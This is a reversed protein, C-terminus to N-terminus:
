IVGLGGLENQIERYSNIVNERFQVRSVGDYDSHLKVGDELILLLNQIGIASLFWGFEFLVNPRAQYYPIEHNTVEDDRTFLAICFECSEATQEFKEILYKNLGPKNQMLIPNLNFDNSLLQTLRLTNMEDRGHIVFINKTTNLENTKTFTKDSFSTISHYLRKVLNFAKLFESTGFEKRANLILNRTTKRIPSNDEYILGIARSTLRLWMVLERTIFENKLIIEEGMKYAETLLTIPKQPQEEM